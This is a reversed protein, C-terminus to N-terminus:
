IGTEDEEDKWEKRYSSNTLCHSLLQQAAKLQVHKLPASSNRLRQFWDKFTRKDLITIDHPVFPYDIYGNRSILMKKVPLEIDSTALVKEIVTGTRNLGILPNLIKKVDKGRRADWFKEKSGTYIAENSQEMMTICFVETTSILIIDLEIPANKLQFVPRYLLLYQDPLRQIYYQLLQDRYVKRDVESKERLTSSAWRVQFRFIYDLFLKKLDDETRPITTFQFQLEDDELVSENILPKIVPEIEEEKKLRGKIKELISKKEETEIQLPITPESVRMVKHFQNTSWAAYVKKWQKRKFRIFQSPYRYADLEYRSIYDYLKVLQAM